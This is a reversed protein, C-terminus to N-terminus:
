GGPPGDAELKALLARLTPKLQDGDHDRLWALLSAEHRRAEAVLRDALARGEATLYVRVRRGDSPDSKRRVLGRKEMQVIIRTLRSQEALAVRALHTIMAGDDDHLCGLVRWEPVRLGAARVQVHFQASAADSAAALLYLLYDQVFEPESVRAKGREATVM